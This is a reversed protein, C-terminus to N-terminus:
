AARTAPRSWPQHPSVVAVVTRATAAKRILQSTTMTASVRPLRRSGDAKVAIKASISRARIRSRAPVMLPDDPRILAAPITTNQKAAIPTYTKAPESLTAVPPM